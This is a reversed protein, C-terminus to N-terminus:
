APHYLIFVLRHKEDKDTYLLTMMEGPLMITYIRSMM